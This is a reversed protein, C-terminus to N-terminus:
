EDKQFFTQVTGDATIIKIEYTTGDHLFKIDGNVDVGRITVNGMTNPPIRDVNPPMQFQGELSEGSKGLFVQEIQVPKEGYNNIWVTACKSDTSSPKCLDNVDHGFAVNVVSFRERVYNVYDTVEQTFAQTSTNVQSNVNSWLVLGLSIAIGMLITTSIVSSVGRRSRPTKNARKGKKSDKDM